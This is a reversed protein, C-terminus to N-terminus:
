DRGGIEGHRPALAPAVRAPLDLLVGLRAREPPDRASLPPYAGALAVDAGLVQNQGGAVVRALGPPQQSEVDRGDRDLVLVDDVVLRRLELGIALAAPALERHHALRILGVVQALLAHAPDEAGVLA